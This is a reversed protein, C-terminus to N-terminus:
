IVCSMLKFIVTVHGKLPNSVVKHFFAMKKAKPLSTIIWDRNLNSISIKNSTRLLLQESNMNIFVEGKVMVDRLKALFGAIFMICTGAYGRIHILVFLSMQYPCKYWDTEISDM